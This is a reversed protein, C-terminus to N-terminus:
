GEGHIVPLGAESWAKIGGTLNVIPQGHPGTPGVYACVRGSRGGVLCQVIVTKGAPLDLTDWIAPMESLPASVAGDIRAAAFEDPERVDILVAKDADLLAYADQVAITPVDTM